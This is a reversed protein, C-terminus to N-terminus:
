YLLKKISAIVMLLGILFTIFSIIVNNTNILLTDLLVEPWKLYWSKLTKNTKHEHYTKIYDRVDKINMYL